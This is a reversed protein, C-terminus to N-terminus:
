EKKDKKLIDQIEERKEFQAKAYSCIPTVKHKEKRVKEIFELFIIKAYGDGRYEENVFISEIIFDEEDDKTYKLYGIEKADKLLIFKQNEEKMEYNRNM